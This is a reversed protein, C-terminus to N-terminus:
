KEGRVYRWLYAFLRQTTRLIVTQRDGKVQFTDVEPPSNKGGLAYWITGVPKQSSGGGPGAIGSVAIGYDAGTKKMLGHWMEHVAARSVAGENKLTQPSVNLLSEKLENAYTVLSGLFYASAGPLLTIQSAMFGGTCSEAFALTCHHDQMWLHLAESLKGTPLLQQRFSSSIAETAAEVDKPNEGRLTVTLTGYSPYIGIELPFRSKLDRLLPDVKTESLLYFHLTASSLKPPPPFYRHLYPLVSTELMSRMEEPVGPLLFLTHSDTKFILGPASGISNPIQQPPTPILQQAVAQTLDDLTPGLGGTAIVVVSRKLAEALGRELQVPDDPLTTHRSIKWGGETLRRGIEAGNTNVTQGRLIEDGIAVLEISM